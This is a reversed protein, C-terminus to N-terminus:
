QRNCTWTIDVHDDIKKGSKPNHLSIVTTHTPSFPLITATLDDDFLTIPKKMETTLTHSKPSGKMSVTMQPGKQQFTLTKSRKKGKISYAITMTATRHGEHFLHFDLPQAQTFDFQSQYTHRGIMGDLYIRLQCKLDGDHGNAAPLLTTAQTDQTFNRLDLGRTRDSRYYPLHHFVSKANAKNDKEIFHRAYGPDAVYFSGKVTNGEVRVTDFVWRRSAQYGGEGNFPYNCVSRFLVVPMDSRTVEIDNHSVIVTPHRQVEARLVPDATKSGVRTVTLTSDDNIFYASVHRTTGQADTPTTYAKFVKGNSAVHRSTYSSGLGTGFRSVLMKKPSTDNMQRVWERWSRGEHHLTNLASDTLNITKTPPILRCLAGTITRAKLTNHSFEFRNYANPTNVMSIGDIRGGSISVVNHRFIVEDFGRVYNFLKTFYQQNVWQNKEIPQEGKAIALPRYDREWAQSLVKKCYSEDWTWRNNYIHRRTTVGKITGCNKSYCTSVLPYGGVSRKGSILYALMNTIINDHFFVEECSLYVDYLTAGYLGDPENSTCLAHPAILRKLEPTDRMVQQDARTYCYALFNELVNNYFHVTMSTALLACVYYNCAPQATTLHNHHFYIPANHRYQKVDGEHNTNHMFFMGSLNKVRCGSIDCARRIIGGDFGIIYNYRVDFHCNRILISDIGVDAYTKDKELVKQSISILSIDKVQCRDFSLTGLDGNLRSTTKFVFFNNSPKRTHGTFTINDAHVSMGVKVEFLRYDYEKQRHIILQGGHLRLDTGVPIGKSASVHFTGDFTIDTHGSIIASALARTNAVAATSDNPVMGLHTAKSTSAQSTSAQCTIAQCLIAMVTMLLLLIRRM